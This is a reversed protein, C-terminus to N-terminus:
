DSAPVTRQTSAKLWGARVIADSCAVPLKLSCLYNGDRKDYVDLVQGGASGTGDAHIGSLVYLENGLISMSLVAM